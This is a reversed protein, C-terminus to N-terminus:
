KLLKRYEAETREQSGFLPLMEIDVIKGHHRDNGLPIVWEIILLTAQKDMAARCNRLISLAREDDWDHIIHKLIYIDGGKPLEGFFSGGVLKCRELVGETSLPSDAGELVAPNDSITGQCMPYRKLISAILAGHGGGIDVVMSAHRFEYLDAVAAGQINTGETM